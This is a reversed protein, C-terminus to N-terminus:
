DEGPIGIGPMDERRKLAEEWEFFRMFQAVTPELRRKRRWRIYEDRLAEEPPMPEHTLHSELSM